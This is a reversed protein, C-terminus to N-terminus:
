IDSSGLNGFSDYTVFFFSPVVMFCSIYKHLLGHSVSATLSLTTVIQFQYTKNILKPDLVQLHYKYQQFYNYIVEYLYVM